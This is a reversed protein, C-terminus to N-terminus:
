RVGVILRKAAGAIEEQTRQRRRIKLILDGDLMTHVEVKEGRIESLEVEGFESGLVMRGGDYEKVKWLVGDGQPDFRLCVVGGEKTARICQQVFKVPDLCDLLAHRSWVAHFTAPPIAMSLEEAVIPQIFRRAAQIEPFQTAMIKLAEGIGYANPDVGVVYLPVNSEPVRQGVATPAFGCGVNLVYPTPSSKVADCLLEPDMPHQPNMAVPFDKTEAGRAMMDAFEQREKKFSEQLRTMWKGMWTKQDMREM